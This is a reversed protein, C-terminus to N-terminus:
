LKNPRYHSSAPRPPSTPAASPASRPAAAPARRPAPTPAPTSVVTATAATATRPHDEIPQSAVPAAAGSPATPTSQAPTSPPPTTQAIPTPSGGGDRKASTAWGAGVWVTAGVGAVVLAATALVRGPSTTPLTAETPSTGDPRTSAGASHDPPPSASGPRITSLGSSSAAAGPTPSSPTMSAATVESARSARAADALRIGHALQASREEEVGPFLERVVQGIQEEFVRSNTQTIANELALQLEAASQFRKNVDKALTKDVIAEVVLPLNPVISRPPPAACRAISALTGGDQAKRFPHVNTVLLYLLIGFSFLDSRRDVPRGAIQEPSFYGVKGKLTGLIRTVHNRRRSKAVGFDVVKVVGDWTVMVNQPSVDRHVVDLLRGDEDRLEHAAHLGACAAAAVYLIWPLPLPLGTARRAAFIGALTEGDIWEMVLYLVGRDEGFDLVQGVNPHVIAAATQAEDLFMAESDSDGRHASNLLKVAVIQEFGRSGRRRAAWVTAFGGRAAPYLLEYQAISDGPRLEDIWSDVM